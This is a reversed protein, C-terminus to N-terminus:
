GSNHISQIDYESSRYEKYDLKFYTKDISIYIHEVDTIRIFKENKIDWISVYM